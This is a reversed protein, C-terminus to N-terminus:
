AASSDRLTPKGNGDWEVRAYPEIAAIAPAADGTTRAHLRIAAYLLGENDPSETGRELAKNAAEGAGTWDRRYFAMFARPVAEDGRSTDALQEAAVPDEIDLYARILM